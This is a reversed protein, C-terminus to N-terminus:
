PQQELKKNLNWGLVTMYKAEKYGKYGCTNLMRLVTPQSVNAKESLQELSLKEIENTHKLINPM